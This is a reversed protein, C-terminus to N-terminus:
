RGPSRSLALRSRSQSFAAGLALQVGFGDSLEELLNALARDGWIISNIAQPMKWKFIKSEGLDIMM